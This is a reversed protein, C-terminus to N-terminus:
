RMSPATSSRAGPAMWRPLAIFVLLLLVVLTAGIWVVPPVRAAKTQQGAAPAPAGDRRIPAIAEEATPATPRKEPAESM